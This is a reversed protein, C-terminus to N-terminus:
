RAPTGSLWAIGISSSSQQSFQQSMHLSIQQSTQQSIQQAVLNHVEASVEPVTDVGNTKTAGQSVRAEEQEMQNAPVNTPKSSHPGLM